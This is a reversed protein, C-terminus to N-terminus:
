LRSRVRLAPRRRQRQRDSFHDSRLEKGPHSQMDGDAARTITIESEKIYDMIVEAIGTEDEVLLINYSM